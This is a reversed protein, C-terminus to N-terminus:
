NNRQSKNNATHGHNLFLKVDMSAITYTQVNNYIKSRLIVTHGPGSQVMVVALRRELTINPAMDVTTKKGLLQHKAMNQVPTHLRTM